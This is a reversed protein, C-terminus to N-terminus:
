LLPPSFQGVAKQMCGITTYVIVLITIVSNNDAYFSWESLSGASNFLM